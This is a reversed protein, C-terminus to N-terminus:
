WVLVRIWATSGGGSNDVSELAQGIINVGGSGNILNLELAIQALANAVAAQGVTSAIVAFTTSATGGTSDTIAEATAKKLTGDNSAVLLDGQVVATASAALTAYVEDGTHFVGAIVTDGTSYATTIGKAIYEQELAFLKPGLAGASDWAKFKLVTSNFLKLMHGPTVAASCPFELTRTGGILRIQNPSNTM